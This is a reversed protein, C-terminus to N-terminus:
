DTVLLDGDYAEWTSGQAELASVPIPYVNPRCGLLKRESAGYAVIDYVELMPQGDQDEIKGIIYHEPGVIATTLTNPGTPYM